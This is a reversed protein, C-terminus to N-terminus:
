AIRKYQAWNLSSFRIFVPGSAGLFRVGDWRIERVQLVTWDRWVWEGVKLTHPDLPKAADYARVAARMAEIDVLGGPVTIENLVLDIGFGRGQDGDGLMYGNKLDRIDTM